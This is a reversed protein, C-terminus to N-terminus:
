KMRGFTWIDRFRLFCCLPYSQLFHNTFGRYSTLIRCYIFYSQALLSLIEKLISYEFSSRLNTGASRSILWFLFDALVSTLRIRPVAMNHGIFNGTLLINQFIGKWAPLSANKQFGISGLRHKQPSKPAIHEPYDAMCAAAPGIECFEVSGLRERRM